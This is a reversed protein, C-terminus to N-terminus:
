LIFLLWPFIFLCFWLRPQEGSVAQHAHGTQEQPIFKISNAMGQRKSNEKRKTEPVSSVGTKKMPWKRKQNRLKNLEGTNQGRSQGGVQHSLLAKCGVGGFGHDERRPEAAKEHKSKPSRLIEMM